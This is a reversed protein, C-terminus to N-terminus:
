RGRYSEIEAERKCKFRVRGNKKKVDKGREKCQREVRKYEKTQAKLM